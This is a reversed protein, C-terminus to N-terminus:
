ELRVAGNLGLAESLEGGLTAGLRDAFRELLDQKKTYKVVDEAGILERAVFSSSGLGDALGLTVSEEGNWFLGSFLVSEEGKLRKGRGLKVAAIFQRHLATLQEHIFLEDDSDLPSFPDLIGKNEGATLLRREIGLSEMAQQFGFSDLRVGISGVLSSKNVYIADAAVAIYYAGSACIDVAVAYVPKNPYKAKLRRIEDNIYASQVPSGGPSNIRLVIGKAQESEFARRIASIVRDASAESDAAIVDNIDILATHQTTPTVVDDLENAYMLLLVVCAYTIIVLKFFRSWRQSRRRERLFELALQRILTQEWHSDDPNSYSLKSSSHRSFWSM